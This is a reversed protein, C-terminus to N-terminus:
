GTKKSGGIELIAITLIGLIMLVACSLVNSEVGNLSEFVRPFVNEQALPLQEGHSNRYFSVTHKWPWILNLSGFLFGTLVALTLDHFRTLLWSLFRSFVVLGLACGAAFSFMLSWQLNKVASLIPSYLGLLVLIFSGSIGPLIMACIAISGGAFVVVPNPTLESPGLLSIAVAAIVGLLFVGVCYITWAGIQKGIHVSSAAILGFFYSWIYLPYFELLFSIVHALSLISSLIGLLLVLLFNGNVHRWCAKPGHSVLVRVAAVNILNISKLLEEYIGTIFAITGGSVGPVVDAAGMALGRLYIGIIAKKKENMVDISMIGTCLVTTVIVAKEFFVSSTMKVCFYTPAIVESLRKKTSIARRSNEILTVLIKGFIRRYRSNNSEKAGRKRQM